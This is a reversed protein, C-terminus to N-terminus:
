SWLPNMHVFELAEPLIPPNVALKGNDLLLSEASLFLMYSISSCSVSFYSSFAFMWDLLLEQGETEITELVITRAPTAKDEWVVPSVDAKALPFFNQNEKFDM